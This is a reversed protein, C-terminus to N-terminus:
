KPGAEALRVDAIGSRQLWDQVSQGAGRDHAAEAANWLIRADILERQQQWNEQAARLALDASHRLKLLYIAEERQHVFDGRQRTEEFRRQLENAHGDAAAQMLADGRGGLQAEALALRLLLNDLRSQDKLLPVVEAARGRDLLFDAYAALLFPDRHGRRQMAGLAKAYAQGATESDGLQEDIQAVETWAWILAPDSADTAREIAIRVAHEADAAHTGLASASAICTAAILTEVHNILAVCDHRAAAANGQVLNITARTLHAQNVAAGDAAIVSDLDGLAREFQHQWQFITARLLLVQAPPRPLDWWAGLATQAYGFYRPDGEEDGRSIAARAFAVAANLSQPDSQALRQLGRFEQDLATSRTVHELVVDDRVPTFPINSAAWLPGALLLLFPLQVRYSRFM